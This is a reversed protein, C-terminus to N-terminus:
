RSGGVSHLLLVSPQLCGQLPAAEIRCSQGAQESHAEGHTKETRLSETNPTEAHQQSLQGSTHVTQGIM